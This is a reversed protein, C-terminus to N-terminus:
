KWTMLMFTNLRDKVRKYKPSCSVECILEGNLNAGLLGLLIIKWFQFMSNPSQCTTPKTKLTGLRLPWNFFSFFFRCQSHHHSATVSTAVPRSTQLCPLPTPSCASPPSFSLHTVSPRTDVRGRYCINLPFLPPENIPALHLLGQREDDDESIHKSAFGLQLMVWQLRPCCFLPYIEVWFMKKPCLEQVSLIPVM